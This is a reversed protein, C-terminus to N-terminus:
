SKSSTGGDPSPSAPLSFDPSVGTLTVDNAADILADYQSLGIAEVLGDWQDPTLVKGVAEADQRPDTTYVRAVMSLVSLNYADRDIDRTTSAAEGDAMAQKRVKRTVDEVRVFVFQGRAQETLRDLDSRAAELTATETSAARRRSARGEASSDREEQELDAVRTRAEQIQSGLARDKAVPIVKSPRVVGAIFGDLDFEELDAPEPTAPTQNTDPM